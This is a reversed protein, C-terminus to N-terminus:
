LIGRLETFDISKYWIACSVNKLEDITMGIVKNSQSGKILYYDNEIKIFLYATSYLNIRNLIHRQEKSFHKISLKKQYKKLYKLEIWGSGTKDFLVYWLDPTGSIAMNEVRIAFWYDKMHNNLYRWFRAESM